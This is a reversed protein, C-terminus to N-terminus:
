LILNQSDHGSNRALSKIVYPLSSITLISALFGDILLHYYNEVRKKIKEIIKERYVIQMNSIRELSKYLPETNTNNQPNREIKGILDDIEASIGELNQLFGYEESKRVEPSAIFKFGAEVVEEGQVFGYLDKKANYLGGSGMLVSVLSAALTLGALGVRASPISNKKIDDVIKKVGDSLYSCSSNTLEELSRLRVIAGRIAM